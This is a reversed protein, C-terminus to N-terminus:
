VKYFADLQGHKKLFGQIWDMIDKFRGLYITYLM